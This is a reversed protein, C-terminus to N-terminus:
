KMLMQRRNITIKHLRLWGNDQVNGGHKPGIDGAEIGPLLRHTHVDRLQIIFSHIGKDAWAQTDELRPDNESSINNISVVHKPIYLRAYLVAHTATRGLAGPWFKISTLTPSHLLLTDSSRIFHATTELGRINSGHGLETRNSAFLCTFVFCFLSPLSVHLFHM